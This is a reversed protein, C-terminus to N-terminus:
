ILGVGRELIWTCTTQVGWFVNMPINAFVFIKWYWADQRLKIYFLMMICYLGSNKGLPGYLVLAHVSNNKNLKIRILKAFLCNFLLIWFYILIVFYGNFKVPIRIFFQLLLGRFDGFWLFVQVHFFLKSLSYQMEQSFVLFESGQMHVTVPFKLLYWQRWNITVSTCIVNRLVEHTYPPTNQNQARPGSLYMPTCTCTCFFMHFPTRKPLIGSTCKANLLRFVNIKM